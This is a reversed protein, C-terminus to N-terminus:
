TNPVESIFGRNTRTPMAKPSTTVIATITPEGAFGNFKSKPAM